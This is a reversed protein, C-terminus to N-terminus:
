PGRRDRGRQGGLADAARLGAGAPSRRRRGASSGPAVAAGGPEGRTRPHRGGAPAHRRRRPDAGRRRHCRRRREARRSRGRHIGRSSLSRLCRRAPRAGGSCPLHHNHGDRYDWWWADRPLPKPAADAHRNGVAPYSEVLVAKRAVLEGPDIRVGGSVGALIHVGNIVRHNIVTEVTKPAEALEVRYAGPDGFCTRHWGAKEALGEERVLSWIVALDCINRLEAYIPYKLALAEFNETFNRAFDTNLTESEGTHVRRGEAALRENESQVKVGQGRLAFAQRDKAAVVADYNLAFWWRLVGMPPPSKGPPVKVMDLYSPVNPGGDELGMGVLKMRYDAEVIVRAARTRPDLGLVEIDQQGLQSRLQALWAKRQGPKLPTRNSEELFKQMRALSAQRPTILCSFKAEPGSMMARMVVVLDDLRVLPQGSDASVISGEPGMRWDGAPGALVLDGSEPYVFVYQVRELGGLVQMEEPIALRAALRLQVQKELRALSIMRLTSRTRPDRLSTRGRSRQRLTALADDTEERLLPRLVGAPDVYVGTPFPAISGPGGVEDWTTPAVTSTILQILSDFDPQAGGGPAGGLPQAAARALTEARARDDAIEGASLFSADRDGAQAQAEAIRGLWADQQRRDAMQRVAALAPAFEGAEIQAQVLTDAPAAAVAPRLCFLVAIMAAAALGLAEGLGTRRSM